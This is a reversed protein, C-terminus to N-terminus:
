SKKLKSTIITILYNREKLTLGTFIVIILSILVEIFINIFTNNIPSYKFAYFYICIFILIIPISIHAIVHTMYDIISLGFQKKCIFLRPLLSLLILILNIWLTIEPKFGFSLFVYSIPINLLYLTSVTMQFTKIRGTAQIMNALPITLVEILSCIIIIQLFSITHSPVNKLWIELIEKTHMIMPTAIILMLYFAFRSSQFGLEIMEKKKGSAYLKVLQPRVATYFNNTFNTIANNVQLSISYAANVVPTFFLNILINLGQGRLINALSGIMNWGAFSLMNNFLYKDKYHKYTCFSFHNKCYWLYFIQISFIAIFMLIAYIKLHDIGIYPLLWVIALKLIADVISSYAFVNMREMAIISANYPICLLTVIFSFISSQYVYNAATLRAEPITLKNNIFWLGITESFLFIIVVLIIYINMSVSFVNSLSADKEEKGMEFSLFRQTASAMTNSLFSFLTVIGGIVNYIGYDEAGLIDLIIRVTYLSVGMTILQRCYLFLTNQAIRKNNVVTNSM